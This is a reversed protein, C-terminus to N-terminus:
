RSHAGPRGALPLTATEASRHAILDAGRRAGCRKAVALVAAAGTTRRHHSPREKGTSGEAKHFSVRAKKFMRLAFTRKAGVTTRRQGEKIGSNGALELDGGTAQIIWGM